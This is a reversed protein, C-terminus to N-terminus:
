RLNWASRGGAGEWSAPQLEVRSYTHQPRPLHYVLNLALETQAGMAFDADLNLHSKKPTDSKPTVQTRYTLGTFEKPRWTQNGNTQQNRDLPANADGWPLGYLM